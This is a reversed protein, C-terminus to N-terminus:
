TRCQQALVYDDLDIFEKPLERRMQRTIAFCACLFVVVACCIVILYRRETLVAQLIGSPAGSSVSVWEERDCESFNAEEYHNRFCQVGEFAIGCKYCSGIASYGPASSRQRNKSRDDWLVVRNKESIHYKGALQNLINSKDSGAGTFWDNTDMIGPQCIAHDGLQWDSCEKERSGGSYGVVAIAYNAELCADIANQVYQLSYGSLTTGGQDFACIGSYTDSYTGSYTASPSDTTPLTTPSPSPPNTPPSSSPIGIITSPPTPFYGARRTPRPTPPPVSAPDMPCSPRSTPFPDKLVWETSCDCFHADEVGAEFCDVGALQVGCAYCSAITSYGNIEVLNRYKTTDDWLVMHNREVIEYRAMLEQLVWNKNSGARYYWDGTAVLGQGCIALNPQGQCYEVPAGLASAVAVVYNAAKCADVANKVYDLSHGSLTTGDQDFVCVGSWAGNVNMRCFLFIM